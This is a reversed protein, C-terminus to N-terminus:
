YTRLNIYHHEPGKGSWVAIHLWQPLGKGDASRIGIGFWTRFLRARAIAPSKPNDWDYLEVFYESSSKVTMMCGDKTHDAENRMCSVVVDEDFFTPSLSAIPMHEPVYGYDDNAARALGTMLAIITLAALIYRM